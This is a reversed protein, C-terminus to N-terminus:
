TSSAPELTCAFSLRLISVTPCAYVLPGAYIKNAPESYLVSPWDTSHALLMSWDSWVMCRRFRRVNDELEKCWETRVSASVLPGIEDVRWFMSWFSLSELIAQMRKAGQALVSRVAGNEGTGLIEPRVTAKIDAVQSRLNAVGVDMRSLREAACQVSRFSADLASQIQMLVTRTQLASLSSETSARTRFLENIAVGLTSIQSSLSDKQYREIAFPLKPDTQLFTVADLAQTPDLFLIRGPACGLEALEKSLLSRRHEFPAVSTFVLITNPRNLLHKTKACLTPVPITLPDCLLVLVDSSLLLKAAVTNAVPLISSLAPLEVLQIDYPYQLLWTSPCNLKGVESDETLAM